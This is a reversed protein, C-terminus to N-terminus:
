MKAGGNISTCCIHVNILLRQTHAEPQAQRQKFMEGLVIPLRDVLWGEQPGESLWMVAETYENGRTKLLGM